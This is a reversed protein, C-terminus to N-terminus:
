SKKKCEEPEAALVAVPRPSEAFALVYFLAPGDTDNRVEHVMNPPEYFGANAPYDTLHCEGSHAIHLGLQGKDVSALLPRHQTHWSVAGRPAVRLAALYVDSTGKSEATFPAQIVSRNLSQATVGSAEAGKCPGPPPTAAAQLGDATLSVAYLELKDSGQNRIESVTGAPQILASGAAITRSACQQNQASRVTAVGAAVGVVLIGQRAVLGTTGNPGVDLHQTEVTLPGTTQLEFPDQTTTKSFINVEAGGTGFPIWGSGTEAEASPIVIPGALAATALLLAAKSRARIM